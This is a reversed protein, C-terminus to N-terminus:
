LGIVQYFCNVDINSSGNLLEIIGYHGQSNAVSGQFVRPCLNPVVSINGLIYIGNWDRNRRHLLQSGTLNGLQNTTICSDSHSDDSDLAWEAIGSGERGEEQIM